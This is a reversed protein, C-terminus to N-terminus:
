IFGDNMAQHCQGHLFTCGPSMPMGPVDKGDSAYGQSDSSPMWSLARRSDDALRAPASPQCLHQLSSRTISLPRPSGILDAQPHGM